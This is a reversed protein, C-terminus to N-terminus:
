LLSCIVPIINVFLLIRILLFGAPYKSYKHFIDAMILISLLLIIMIILIIVSLIYTLKTNKFLFITFPTLWFVIDWILSPIRSFINNDTNIDSIFSKNNLYTTKAIISLIGMVVLERVLPFNLIGLIILLLIKM